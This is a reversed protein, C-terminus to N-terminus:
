QSHRRPLPCDPSTASPKTQILKRRTAHALHGRVAVTAGNVKCIVPPRQGPADLAPCPQRWVLPPNCAVCRHHIITAGSLWSLAGGLRRKDRPPELAASAPFLSSFPIVLPVSCPRLSAFCSTRPSLSSHTRLISLIIDRHSSHSVLTRARTASWISQIVRYGIGRVHCARDDTSLLDDIGLLSLVRQQLSQLCAAHRM